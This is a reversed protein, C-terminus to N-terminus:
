GPAVLAEELLTTTLAPAKVFSRTSAGPSDAAGPVAEPLDPVGAECDVSAPKLRVTLATSSLQFRTLVTVSIVARLELSRKAPRGALAANTAPVLCNLTESLSDPAVLLRLPESAELPAIAEARDEM